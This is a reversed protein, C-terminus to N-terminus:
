DNNKSRELEEEVDIGQEAAKTYWYVAKDGDQKVCNGNEYCSALNYQAVADGKEAAKSFWYVAKAM